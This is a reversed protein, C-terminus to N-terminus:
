SMIMMGHQILLADTWGAGVMQEYTAGGAQATMVRAPAPPAVPATPPPPPMLIGPNPQVYTAGALHAADSALTGTYTPSQQPPSPAAPPVAPAGGMASLPVASAGPPLPAKGFGVSSADPGGVIEDGYATFAIMGPNLFMGPQNGSGNGAVTGNIEVFYGTKIMGPEQLPKEGFRDYLQPAYSSDFALVWCGRYGERDCPKKGAKNPVTSDGDTVKWAFSPAQFQGNPWARAATNYIDSGWKTQNWHAESGKAIAVGFSWRKTPQGANPGTKILLPKGEADKERPNYVSGWVLRGPPFLVPTRDAM